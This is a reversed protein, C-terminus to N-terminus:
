RDARSSARGLMWAFGIVFALVGAVIIQWLPFNIYYHSGLQIDFHQPPFVRQAFLPVRMMILRSLVSCITVTVIFATAGALLSKLCIM